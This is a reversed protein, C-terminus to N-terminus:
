RPRFDGYAWSIVLLGILLAGTAILIGIVETM